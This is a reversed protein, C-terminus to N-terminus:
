AKWLKKVCISTAKMNEMTDGAHTNCYLKKTEGEYNFKPICKCGFIICKNINYFPQVKCLVCLVIKLKNMLRIQATKAKQETTLKKTM